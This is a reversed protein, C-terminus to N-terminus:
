AAQLIGIDLSQQDRSPLIQHAEWCRAAAALTMSFWAIRSGKQPDAESSLEPWVVDGAVGLAAGCHADDGDLV